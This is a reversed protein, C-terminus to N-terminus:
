EVRVCAPRDQHRLVWSYVEEMQRAAQEWSFSRQMWARGRAGMRRREEDPLHMAARLQAELADVGHEIWWGCRETELGGWPAGKTSIVPLESALAEAVTLGFNENLTALVFIDATRYATTRDEGILAPELSMRSVGLGLALSRLTKDYNVEPPGALRLRWDPFEPELRAWAAVLRDLGKKPHVRGLSLITKGSSTHGRATLEPVAVGNPIIAVPNRLGANRLEDCEAVSTAHLCDATELTRRQLAIWFLRKKLQSYQLAGAGLMGRTSHVLGLAASRRIRSPYINPMLWLGHAHLIHTSAASEILNQEMAGSAGLLRPLGGWGSAVPHEAIRVGPPAPWAASSSSSGMWGALTHISVTHGLAALEHALARVSHSTGATAVAVTGAVQAIRLGAPKPRLLM